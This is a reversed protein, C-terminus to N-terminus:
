LQKSDVDKQQLRDALENCVFSRDAGTELMAYVPELTATTPNRVKAHGLLILSEANDNGHVVTESKPKEIKAQDFVVTNVNM